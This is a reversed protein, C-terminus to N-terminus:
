GQNQSNEPTCLTIVKRVLKAPVIKLAQTIDKLITRDLERLHSPAKVGLFSFLVRVLNLKERVQYSKMDQIAAWAALEKPDGTLEANPTIPAPASSSSSTSVELAIIKDLLGQLGGAGGSDAMTRGEGLAPGETSRKKSQKKRPAQNGRKMGQKARQPEENEDGAAEGSMILQVLVGLTDEKNKFSAETIAQVSKSAPAAFVLGLSKQVDVGEALLDLTTCTSTGDARIIVDSSYEEMNLHQDTKKLEASINKCVEGLVNVGKFVAKIWNVVTSNKATSFPCEDNGIVKDALLVTSF